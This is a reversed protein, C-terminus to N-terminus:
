GASRQCLGRIIRPVSALFSTAPWELEKRECISSAKLMRSLMEPSMLEHGDGAAIARDISAILSRAEKSRAEILSATKQSVLGAELKFKNFVLAAEYTSDVIEDRTRWKTEYSLMHKWTPQRLAKRHDELSRWLLRYGYLEPNEFVRSGPDIFPALPSIHPHLRNGRDLDKVLRQCYKATEMVSDYDQKGLGIMFFLDFRQCGNALAAQISVELDHNSYGRGFTRRVEESHSEPSMQINYNPISKAVRKFFEPAPPAFFELVIPSTPKIAELAQLLEEAYADGSQFSDGIIFVPAKLFRQISAVDRAVTKPQRYAPKERNCHKKYVTRSGGCGVCDHICGRCSLAMTIPYELWNNFPLLNALSRYKIVSKVPYSYDLPLDDLSDPVHTLANHHVDGKSDRWSTNPVEAPQGGKKLCQMLQRLPEETSDGRVVFDVQPYDMLEKYFYTSSLGGFIVPTQPHHKKLTQALDLSGSAHPLWHLDIGFASASLKKVFNDVNFNPDRLMRNAINVIQVRFGNRELYGAISVFGIPYMVFIPTSPIVDSIPGYVIPAERFRMDSPAHLLVLDAKPM